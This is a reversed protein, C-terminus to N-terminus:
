NETVDARVIMAASTAGGYRELYIGNRSLDSGRHQDRWVRGIALLHSRYAEAADRLEGPAFGRLAVVQFLQSNHRRFAAADVQRSWLFDLFREAEAQRYHALVWYNLGEERPDLDAGPREILRPQSGAAARAAGGEHGGSGRIEWSLGPQMAEFQDSAARFGERHGVSRGSWHALVIVGVLVVGALVIYGKPVRLLLPQRPGSLWAWGWGAGVRAGTAAPEPATPPLADAKDAGGRASGRQTAQRMVEYPALNDKRPVM